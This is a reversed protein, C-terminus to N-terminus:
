LMAYVSKNVTICRKNGSKKRVEYAIGLKAETKRTKERQLSLMVGDAGIVLRESVLNTSDPLEGTKQFWELL